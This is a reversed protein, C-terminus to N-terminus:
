GNCQTGQTDKIWRIILQALMLAAGIPICLYPYTWKIRLASTFDSWAFICLSIGQWILVVLFTITILNLVITLWKQYKVPLSEYLTEIRPHNDEFIVVSAGLLVMYINLYRSLEEGWPLSYNFIYRLFVQLTIIAFSVSFIIITVNLVLRNLKNGFKVM